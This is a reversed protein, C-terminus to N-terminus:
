PGASLSSTQAMPPLNLGVGFPNFSSIGPLNPRAFPPMPGGLSDAILSLTQLLVAPVCFTGARLLTDGLLEVGEVGCNVRLFNSNSGLDPLAEVEGLGSGEGFIPGDGGTVILERPLGNPAARGTSTLERSLSTASRRSRSRSAFRSFIAMDLDSERVPLSRL